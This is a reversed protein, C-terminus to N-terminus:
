RLDVAVGLMRGVLALVADDNRADGEIAVSLSPTGAIQAVRVVVPGDIGALARVYIGEPTFLDVINTSLRRLASVTLDLRYPAIAPLAYPRM